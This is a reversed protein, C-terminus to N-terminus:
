SVLYGTFWSSNAPNGRVGVVQTGGVVTIEVQVTNGATLALDGSFPLALTTNTTDYMSSPNGQAFQITNSTSAGVLRGVMSTNSASLGQLNVVGSFHYNGTVGATFIGNSSNYYGGQNKIVTDFVITYTINAGTVNSQLASVYASFFPQSSNQVVGSVLSPGSIVQKSGDLGLLTNATLQPLLVNANSNVQLATVPTATNGATGNPATKLYINGLSEEITSAANNTVYKYLSTTANFNLNSAMFIAGTDLLGINQGTGGFNIFNGESLATNFTLAAATGSLAASGISLGQPLTTSISPVGSSNTVLVSSNGTALGTVTNAGNSYLLNSASYTSAFTATSWTPAANSGSRIIQGATATGALIAMASATSYVMGGNSATLSANSGGRTLGLQGTWGLTLSAANLLATSPSGGLTLTVNTDDSKTLAAGTIDSATVTDWAPAASITGNGTQRLFKKTSTTNGALKALTNAGSAYLTDGLTYSTQNTGGQTETVAANTTLITTTANPLTYTKLSTAPGSFQMFGNNTGGNAGPLIGTVKTTLDINGALMSNTVKGVGITTTLGSSSVDGSLNGSVLNKSSDTAVLQSATLGSINVTKLFNIGTTSGDINFYETLTGAEQTLFSIKGTMASATNSVIDGRIRNYFAAGASSDQGIWNMPAITQGSIVTNNTLNLGSGASSLTMAGFTPTSTTGIFQPLTLTLAGTQPTGTTGNVLVQNSSGTVSSPIATSQWQTGNGVLANGNTPTTSGLTNGNIKAVTPNPYTGSLDGGASGGPAVGSITVNSAATILGKANVAFTGVQTASGFSGVNSNVTALTTTLNSSTVDGSLNGSVLNKSGDTAVLSSATLGTVTLSSTTNNIANNTAM